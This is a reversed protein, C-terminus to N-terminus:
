FAPVWAKERRGWVKSGLGLVWSNCIDPKLLKWNQRKVTQWQPHPHSAATSLLPLLVYDPAILRWAQSIDLLATSLSAKSFHQSCSTVSYWIDEEINWWSLYDLKQLQQQPGSTKNSWPGWEANLTSRWRGAHLCAKKLILQSLTDTKLWFYNQWPLLLEWSKLPLRWTWSSRQCTRVEDHSKDLLRLHRRPRANGTLLVIHFTETLLYCRGRGLSTKKQEQWWCFPKKHTTQCECPQTEQVKKGWELTQWLSESETQSLHATWTYISSCNLYRRMGERLLKM